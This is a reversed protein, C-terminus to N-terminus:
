PSSCRSHATRASKASSATAEVKHTCRKGLRCNKLTDSFVVTKMTKGELAHQSGTQGESSPWGSIPTEGANAQQAEVVRPHQENSDNGSQPASQRM